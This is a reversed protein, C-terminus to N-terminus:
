EFLIYIRQQRPYPIDVAIEIQGDALEHTLRLCQINAKTRELSDILHIQM